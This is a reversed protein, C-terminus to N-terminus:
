KDELINFDILKQCINKEQNWLSQLWKMRSVKNQLGHIPIELLMPHMNDTKALDFMPIIIIIQKRGKIELM